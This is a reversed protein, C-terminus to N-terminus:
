ESWIWRYGYYWATGIHFVVTTLMLLAFFMHLSRWARLVASARHSRVSKRIARRLQQSIEDLSSKQLLYAPDNEITLQVLGLQQRGAVRVDRLYRPLRWLGIKGAKPIALQVIGDNIASSAQVSHQALITMAAKFAPEDRRPVLAYLFRGVLGTVVVLLLSWTTIQSITNRAKFTSHFSIFLAGALGTFIHIDLWTKIAGLNWKALRRRALYLLNTFILLTGVIGYGYGIEGSSRLARYDTHEVRDDLSLLYYDHGRWALIVTILALLVLTVAWSVSRQAKKRKNKSM